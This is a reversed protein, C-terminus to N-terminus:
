TNGKCEIVVEKKEWKNSNKIELFYFQHLLPLKSKQTKSIHISNQCRKRLKYPVYVCGSSQKVVEEVKLHVCM